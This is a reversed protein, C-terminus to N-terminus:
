KNKVQKTIKNEKIGRLTARLARATTIDKNYLNKKRLVYYVAYLFSLVSGLIYRTTAGRNYFFQETYGTFWTSEEQGVSAIEIPVYYIKLGAKECDLLFRLEEEAGNGTGAGLLEDFAIKKETLSKKRFSIQWSSVKM